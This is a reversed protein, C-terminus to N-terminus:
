AQETAPAGPSDVPVLDAAAADRSPYLAFVTSLGSLEFVRRVPGHPCIVVLARDERGLIGRARLLVRLGTSDLFDVGSLDLAFAGISERIAADLRETLAPATAPDVQGRVALGAAAGLAADDLELENVGRHDAVARTAGEIVTM